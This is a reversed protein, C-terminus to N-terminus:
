THCQTEPNTDNMLSNFGLSFRDDTEAAIKPFEDRGKCTLLRENLPVYSENIHAFEDRVDNCITNSKKDQNLETLSNPVDNIIKFDDIRKESLTNEAEPSRVNEKINLHFVSKTCIDDIIQSINLDHDDNDSIFDDPSLENFMRDLTNNLRSNTNETQLVKDFQPGRKVKGNIERNERQVNLKKSRKPTISMSEFSEELSLPRNKCLFEDIKKINEVTEKKRHRRKEPKRKTNDNANTGDNAKNKAPRKKVKANRANEFAEVLKPYCKQVVDQPEISTLEALIDADSDDNEEDLAVYEKLKEVIDHDSKWIIEYSAVSRVNRIKKIAEPVFLDSILRDEISINPLHSLQWRTVLPFIKEFAYQPKWSLHREMFDIFESIQPQKWQIDIETSVPDKRILFEDILEQNPFHEILLAKKQLAIENLLLARQERYSDNCKVVTGCDICGSKAHKQVEGNHGCSSCLNSNALRAERICLADDTKWSKIRDLIDEDKVIKFLKMAAEKGVGNIGDDYDCGCLLALAIMKNRGLGLIKEIKELDYEDVAGGTGGRNGQASTCFNRYVVKAGYLFCDSDQSICGDVLGDENLYACMAEAEGHGQVCALGMHQLMQKCENLIRNFQLRGGKRTTKRVRSGSRVDNRKAITNHKLTPAKGELVFVPSIDQMLLFATRFFLNRLYMKPQVSNDTITQSDVVWCSMDIAITKGQLEFMPKRECLPSLINWLDKVGM